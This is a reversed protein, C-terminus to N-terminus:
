RTRSRKTKPRTTAIVEQARKFLEEQPRLRAAISAARRLVRAARTREGASVLELAAAACAAVFAREYYALQRDHHAAVRLMTDASQRHDDVQSQVSSVIELTQEIHWDGVNTKATSQLRNLLNQLSTLARQPHKSMMALSRRINAHWQAHTM